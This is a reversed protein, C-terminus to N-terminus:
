GVRRLTVAAKFANRSKVASRLKRQPQFPPMGPTARPWRSGTSGSPQKAARLTDPAPAAKLIALREAAQDEFGPFAKVFEGRTFSETKRDRYGLIMKGPFIALIVRYTLRGALCLLVLDWSM